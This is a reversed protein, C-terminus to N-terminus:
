VNLCFASILYTDHHFVTVLLGTFWYVWKTSRKILVSLSIIAQTATSPYSGTQTMVTIRTSNEVRINHPACSSHHTANIWQNGWRSPRGLMATPFSRPSVSPICTALDTCATTEQCRLSWLEPGRWGHVKPFFSLMWFFIQHTSNTM